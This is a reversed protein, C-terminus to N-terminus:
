LAKGGRGEGGKWESCRWDETPGLQDGLYTADGKWFRFSVQGAENIVENGLYKRRLRISFKVRRIIGELIRALETVRAGNWKEKATERQVCGRQCGCNKPEWM